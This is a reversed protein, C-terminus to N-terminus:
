VVRAVGANAPVKPTFYDRDLPAENEPHAFTLSFCTQSLKTTATHFEICFPGDPEGADSPTLSRTRLVPDLGGQGGRSRDM